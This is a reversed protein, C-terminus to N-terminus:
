PLVAKFPKVDVAQYIGNVAYPDNQAWELAAELSEFEAVILSGSYGTAGTVDQDVRPFPGALLLRGEELLQKLRNRHAAQHQARLMQSDDVDRAVIAYLM